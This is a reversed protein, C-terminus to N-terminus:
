NIPLWNINADTEVKLRAVEPSPARNPRVLAEVEETAGREDCPAATPRGSIGNTWLTVLPIRRASKEKGIPDGTVADAKQVHDAGNQGQEKKRLLHESVKGM